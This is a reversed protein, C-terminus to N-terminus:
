WTSCYATARESAGSVTVRRRGREDPVCGGRVQLERKLVKNTATRPLADLIRVYRPWQKPGLDPQEALFAEFWALPDLDGVLVLAAM